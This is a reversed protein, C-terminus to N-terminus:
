LKNVQLILKPEGEQYFYHIQQIIKVNDDEIKDMRKLLDLLVKQWFFAKNDLDFYTKKDHQYGISISLNKGLKPCDKLYPKLFQKAKDVVQKRVQYHVTSYFLNATLYYTSKKNKGLIVKEIPFPIQKKYLM